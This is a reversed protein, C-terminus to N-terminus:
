GWSIGATLAAAQQEAMQKKIADKVQNLANAASPPLQGGLSAASEQPEGMSSSMSSIGRSSLPPPASDTSM